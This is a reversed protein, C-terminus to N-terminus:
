QFETMQLLSASKLLSDSIRGEESSLFLSIVRVQVKTSVDRKHFHLCLHQPQSAENVSLGRKDRSFKEPRFSTHEINHLM